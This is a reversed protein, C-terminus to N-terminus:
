GRKNLAENLSYGAVLIALIILIFMAWIFNGYVDLRNYYEVELAIILPIILAGSYKWMKMVAIALAIFILIGFYWVEGFFFSELALELENTM